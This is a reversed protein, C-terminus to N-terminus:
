SMSGCSHGPGQMILLYYAMLSNQCTALIRHSIGELHGAEQMYEVIVCRKECDSIQFESYVLHMYVM